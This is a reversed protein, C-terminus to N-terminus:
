PFRKIFFEMMLHQLPGLYAEASQCRWVAPGTFLNDLCAVYKNKLIKWHVSM